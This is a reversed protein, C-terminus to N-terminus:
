SLKKRRLKGRFVVGMVSILLIIYFMIRRDDTEPSKPAGPEYDPIAPEAPVDLLTEDAADMSVYAAPSLYEDINAASDQITLMTDDAPVDLLTEDPTDMPVYAAPTVYEDVNTAPESVPPTPTTDAPVDDPVNILPEAPTVIPPV